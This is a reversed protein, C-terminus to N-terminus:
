REKCSIGRIITDLTTDILDDTDVWPFNPVSKSVIMLDTVGHIMTWVSQALVELDKVEIEGADICRRLARRLTDFCEHGAADCPQIRDPSEPVPCPGFTLRYHHPHAIGFEVYIRMGRRLAETPPLNAAELASIRETLEQFVELAITNFLSEKDQFYLYITSPAYEIRDAIKRMSVSEYGEEVFLETAATLIQNRVAEKERQRRETVGM